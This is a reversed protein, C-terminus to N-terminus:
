RQLNKSYLEALEKIGGKGEYIDRGFLIKDFERLSVNEKKSEELCIKVYGLYSDINESPNGNVSRGINELSKKARIDVVTFEKPYCVSLIASAIPMGVGPIGGFRGVLSKIKGESDRNNFDRTIEEISLSKKILGNLVKTKARPSKWVVISFFEEATLYHKKNFSNHLEKFLMEEESPYYKLYDRLENM